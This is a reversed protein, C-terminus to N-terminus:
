AQNPNASNKGLVRPLRMKRHQPKSTCRFFSSASEDNPRDRSRVSHTKPPPRLTSDQPPNKIPYKKYKSSAGEFQILYSFERFRGGIGSANVAWTSKRYRSILSSGAPFGAPLGTLRADRKFNGGLAICERAFREILGLETPFEIAIRSTEAPRPDNTRTTSALTIACRAHVAHDITYFQLVIWGIGTDAGAEIPLPEYPAEVWGLLREGNETLFSPSTYATAVASWEGHIVRIGLEILDPPDEYIVRLQLFHEAM